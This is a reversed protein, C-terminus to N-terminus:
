HGFGCGKVSKASFDYKGKTIKKRERVTYFRSFHVTLFYKLINKKNKIM